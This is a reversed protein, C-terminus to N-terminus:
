LLQVCMMIQRAMHKKRKVSEDISTNLRIINLAIHRFIAYNEPSAEKRIRSEDERFSVDLTWHFFNEVGWHKRSTKLLPEAKAECSSIYFRRDFTQFNRSKRMTEVMIMSTLKKWKMGEPM